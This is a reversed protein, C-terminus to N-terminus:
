GNAAHVGEFTRILGRDQALVEAAAISHEVARLERDLATTSRLFDEVQALSREALVSDSVRCVHAVIAGRGDNERRIIIKALCQRFLTIAFVDRLVEAM